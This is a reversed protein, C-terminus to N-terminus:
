TRLKTLKMRELKSPDTFRPDRERYLVNYSCTPIITGDSEPVAVCCKMVRTADFSDEDMHSHIYIAKTAREAIRTRQQLPLAGDSPFMELLLRKLTALVADAEDLLSPDAWLADMGDRMAQEVKQNPEIYITDGLLEFLTERGLFRAYPVYGGGDLMLLYCISYCHPHALPSPVFDRGNIHGDSAQEIIHHLDPITIRTTRDFSSGGQGTFAMTHLELSCINPKALVLRLLRPVEVDNLGGAVAPLITTTVDHKELLDLVDLKTQVTNAGVLLRDTAEDFTDLSLVVRTDHEALQKTYSEDRLALGNTSLTLRRIGADRSMQLM